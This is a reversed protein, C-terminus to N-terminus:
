QTEQWIESGVTHTECKWSKWNKRWLGSGYHKELKKRKQTNKPITWTLGHKHRRKWKKFNGQCLEPGVTHIEWKERKESNRVM